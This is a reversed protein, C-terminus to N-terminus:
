NLIKKVKAAIESASLHYHTLLENPKASRPVSDVAIGFVKVSGHEALASCVAEHIGGELYHDEVTLITNKTESAVQFLGDKDIPKVSFIDLVRVHISEQELLKRAELAEHLTVGAGIITLRDSSSSAVTKFGGIKFTEDNDYIVPNAPRSTRIYFIGKTNAALEIARETSVADSPYLVVADPIARFMALDELAMQSPGDEGISVGSHSGCYKVNLKSIGGMRIQDYARSFFAGFTSAFPIKNRTSFGQAVGVM